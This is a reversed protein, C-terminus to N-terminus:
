PLEISNGSRDRVFVDWRGDPAAEFAITSGDASITPHRVAAPLDATLNRTIQTERDYLYIAANGRRSAAFVLYRGDESVSPHSAIADFRNLGPLEVLRRSDADFLYVDQSGNRDSVFAIYRGAISPMLESAPSNLGRGGKDFSFQLARPYGGGCGVLLLAIAAWVSHGRWRRAACGWSIRDSRCKFPREM